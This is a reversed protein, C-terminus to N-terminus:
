LNALNDDWNGTSWKPLKAIRRTHTKLEELIATIMNESFLIPKENM